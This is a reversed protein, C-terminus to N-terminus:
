RLGAVVLAGLDQSGVSTISVLIGDDPRHVHYTMAGGACSGAFAELGAITRAVEGTAGGAPACAAEDYSARWDAFFADSYVGPRLRVVSSIALDEADDTSVVVLAVAIAIASEGLSPDSAVRAAADPDAVLPAGAVTAPLHDLLDDDVAVAGPM